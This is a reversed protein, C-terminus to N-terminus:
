LSQAMSASSIGESVISIPQPSIGSASRSIYAMRPRFRSTSGVSAFQTFPDQNETFFMRTSKEVRVFRNFFRDNRVLACVPTAIREGTRCAVTNYQPLPIRIAM